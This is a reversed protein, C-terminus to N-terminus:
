KVESEVIEAEFHNASWDGDEYISFSCEDKVEVKDELGYVFCDERTAFKYINELERKADEYNSFVQISPGETVNEWDWVADQYLVYVKM